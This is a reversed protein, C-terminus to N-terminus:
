MVSILYRCSVTLTAQARSCVRQIIGCFYGFGRLGCSLGTVVVDCGAALHSYVLIFLMTFGETILLFSAPPTQDRNAVARNRWSRGYEFVHGLYVVVRVVRFAVDGLYPIRLFKICSCIPIRLSIDRPLIIFAVYLLTLSAASELCAAEAAAKGVPISLGYAM